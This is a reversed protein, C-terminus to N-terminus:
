PYQEDLGAEFWGPWVQGPHEALGIALKDALDDSIGNKRYYGIDHGGQPDLKALFDSILEESHHELIFKIPWV